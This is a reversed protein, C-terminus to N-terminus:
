KLRMVFECIEKTANPKGIYKVGESLNSFKWSNNFLQYIAEDIPYTDTIFQAYGNNLLFELNRDEQGPIPNFLLLPLGKALSESVTLGGPKTVICDSADMMVDVNKAFGYVYKDKKTELMCVNRRMKENNGCVVLMQFDDDLKDLRKIHKIVSGYGMSGSMILITKKDAIGLKERADSKSLAKEFKEDIPIGIPIIKNVDMGKKLAQYNLMESATVYYDLNTEEWFPHITFDTIIGVIKIDKKIKGRKKLSEIVQVAMVHTCIIVDPEFDTVCPLFEISIFYNFTKAVRIRSSNKRKECRRYERGYIEPAYKTSMLYGKSVSKEIIPSVYRYVDVMQAVAGLETLKKVIATGTSHHGGGTPISLVLVRM